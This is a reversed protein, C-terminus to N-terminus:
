GFEHGIASQGPEVGQYGPSRPAGGARSTRTLPAGNLLTRVFWAAGAVAGVVGGLVLGLAVKKM